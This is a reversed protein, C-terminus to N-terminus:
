TGPTSFCYTGADWVTSISSIRNEWDADGSGDQVAVGGAALNRYWGSNQCSDNDFLRVDYYTNNMWSKSANNIGSGYFSLGNIANVGNTDQLWSAPIAWRSGGYSYGNWLCFYETSGAPPRPPCPTYAKLAAWEAPTHVAYGQARLKDATAQEWVIGGVGTKADWDPVSAHAPTAGALLAGLVVALAAAVMKIKNM